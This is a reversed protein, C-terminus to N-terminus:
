LTQIEFSYIKLRSNMINTLFTFTRCSARVVEDSHRVRRSHYVGANELTELGLNILVGLDSILNSRDELGELSLTSGGLGDERSDM